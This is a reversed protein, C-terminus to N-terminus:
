GEGREARRRLTIRAACAALMALGLSGILAAVEDDGRGITRLMILVALAMYGAGVVCGGWAVWRPAGPGCFAAVLAAPYPLLLLAWAPHVGESGGFGGHESTVWLVAVGAAAMVAVGSRYALLARQARRVGPAHGDRVMWAELAAMACGLVVLWSGELPDVAGILAILHGATGVRPAWRQRSEPSM